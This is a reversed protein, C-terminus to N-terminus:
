ASQRQREFAGSTGKLGVAKGRHGKCRIGFIACLRCTADCCHFLSNRIAENASSKIMQYSEGKM